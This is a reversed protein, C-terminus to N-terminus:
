GMQASGDPAAEDKHADLSKTILWLAELVSTLCPVDSYQVVLPM